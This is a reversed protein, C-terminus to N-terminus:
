IDIILRERSESDTAGVMVKFWEPLTGTQAYAELEETSMREFLDNM